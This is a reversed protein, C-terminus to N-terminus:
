TAYSTGLCTAGGAPNTKVLPLKVWSILGPSSKAPYWPFWATALLFLVLAALLLLVFIVSM